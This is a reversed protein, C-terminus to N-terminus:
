FSFFKFGTDDRFDQGQDSLAHAHVRWPESSNAVLKLIDMLRGADILDLRDIIMTSVKAAAAKSAMSFRSASSVYFGVRQEALALAGIFERISSVPEVKAPDLRQKVQVLVPTDSLLLVQDYGGDGPGGVHVAECNFFDSFVGGVLEELKRPSIRNLDKPHLLVYNRLADLPADDDILAFERLCARRLLSFSEYSLGQGFELFAHNESEWWGCVSCARVRVHPVEDESAEDRVIRTPSNCIYCVSGLWETLVRKLSSESTPVNLSEIADFLLVRETFLADLESEGLTELLFASM